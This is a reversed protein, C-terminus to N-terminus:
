VVSKRDGWRQYAIAQWQRVEADEPIRQALGEILAIARPFRKEKLLLQLQNYSQWKLLEETPSLHSKTPTKEEKKRVKTEAPPPSAKPPDPKAAAPTQSQNWQRSVEALKWADLLIEYAETIAIFKDKAQKDTPNVDPHYCRALRRYSSKIEALTAGSNLELLRYCDALNM